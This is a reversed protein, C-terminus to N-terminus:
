KALQLKAPDPVYTPPLQPRPPPFVRVPAPLWPLEDASKSRQRGIDAEIQRVESVLSQLRGGIKGVFHAAIRGEEHMLRYLDSRAIRILRLPTEATM